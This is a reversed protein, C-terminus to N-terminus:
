GVMGRPLFVYAYMLLWAALLTGVALGSVAIAGRPVEGMVRQLAAEDIDDSAEPPPASSPPPVPSPV